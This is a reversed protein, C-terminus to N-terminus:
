RLKLTSPGLGPLTLSVSRSLFGDVYHKLLRSEELAVRDRPLHDVLQRSVIAVFKAKARSAAVNFRNLSYLFQEEAAIQDADGLGFSALMVAKEQGQFREVTDITSFIDNRDIEPPMVAALRDYVAAQQARHPTVIGIGRRFFDTASYPSANDAELDLLGANFLTLVLAAVLDAEDDNRQSSYRDNHVIAALPEDVALITALDGSWPLSAPWNGPQVPAAPNVTAIRLGANQPAAELDDGYGAERVFEVIESNSRFSRNLMVPEVSFQPGEHVRYNRYFDYASGLLHEIGEPAAMPHIPAMQKDDGVVVVRGNDALKTLGVILHAVDLQSAEDILLVDLLPACVTPAGLKALQQVTTAVVTIGVADNLRQELTARDDNFDSMDIVYPALLPDIGAVAESSSLRALMVDAAVGEASLMEPLRKAVNDIAVWTFGVIGIRLPRGAAVAQSALATIYAQATRSKGTGPPGWWLALRQETARRIASCQRDTLGPAVRESIAVIPDAAVGSPARAMSDADWIFHAAPSNVTGARARGRTVRAVRPQPFLPRNQAVPPNRIGSQDSLADKLKRTFPDMTTPDLIAYRGANGDLDMTLLNLRLADSLLDSAEVVLLRASRDVALVTVNLDERVKKYREYGLIPSRDQLEPHWTKFQATTLDQLHPLDAEPLLSWTFEGVKLRADRSRESLRLVLVGPQAVRAALNLGVLADQRARGMLVAEVRASRFRAEREHPPMAMLLDIELRQAAAMLRAHQYIIQGDDGVSTLRTAGQFVSGVAPAEATLQDALLRTLRETVYNTAQLKRKVVTRVMEQHWQFDRDTFPSQREWIEHGRESPIQDSLPDRYFKNIHFVWREGNERLRGDPDINNALDIVGYHHPIAAAMLSNVADSVITVPSSRSVFNPEDLVTDAPFVWAMPSVDINGVRTPTQLRDLHRGFVRCLHEFTLRDWLFFQLTADKKNPAGNARYGALVEDRARHIDAVLHDLWL